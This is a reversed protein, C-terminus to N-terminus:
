WMCTQLASLIEGIQEHKFDDKLNTTNLVEHILKACNTNLVEHVCANYGSGTDMKFCACNVHPWQRMKDFKIAHKIMEKSGKINTNEKSRLQNIADYLNQVTVRKHGDLLMAAVASVCEQASNHKDFPTTM